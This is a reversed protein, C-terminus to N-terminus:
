HRSMSAMNERVGKTHPHDKGLRQEFTVLAQKLYGLASEYFGLTHNIVGADNLYTSNQPALKAAQELYSQAKHYDLQLEAIHGLSQADQAAQAQFKASNELHSALSRELLAEAKELEGESLAAKTERALADDGPREALQKQLENYRKIWQNITQKLEELKIDKENLLEKLRAVVLAIIEPDLGQYHHTTINGGVTITSNRGQVLNGDGIVPPNRESPTGKKGRIFSGIGKVVPIVIGSVLAVLVGSLLIKETSSLENFWNLMAKM